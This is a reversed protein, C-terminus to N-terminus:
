LQNSPGIGWCKCYRGYSSFQHLQNIKEMLLQIHCAAKEPTIRFFEKDVHYAGLEDHIRQEIRKCDSWVFFDMYKQWKGPVGTSSNLELCRAETERGETFGIKVIGDITENSLIYIYGFKM